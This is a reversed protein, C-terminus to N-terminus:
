DIGFEVNRKHAKYSIGVGIEGILFTSARDKGVLFSSVLFLDLVILLILGHFSFCVLTLSKIRLWTFFENVKYNNV